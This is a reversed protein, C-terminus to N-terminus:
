LGPLFCKSGEQKVIKEIVENRIHDGNYFDNADLNCDAPDYSGVMDLNLRQALSRYYREIGVIDVDGSSKSLEILNHYVQPHSPLMCLTVQIHHEMLHRIFNELIGKLEKDTKRHKFEDTYKGEQIERNVIKRSKETDCSLLKMTWLRRGDKYLLQGETMDEKSVLQADDVNKSFPQTRQRITRLLKDVAMQFYSFSFINLWARSIMPPKIKESRIGLRGLMGYTDEKISFWRESPFPYVVLDPDLLLIVRQPYLNKKEYGEFIGLYDALAVYIVSNNIVKKNTFINDGLWMSHSSGLVVIDPAVTMKEIFHKELLRDDIGLPLHEVNKGEVLSQAARSELNELQYAMNEYLGAPDVGINVAAIMLLIPAFLLIKVFLRWAEKIEFNSIFFNINNM